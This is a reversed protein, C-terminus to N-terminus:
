IEISEIIMKEVFDKISINKSDVYKKLKDHIDKDIRISRNSANYKKSYAVKSQYKKM